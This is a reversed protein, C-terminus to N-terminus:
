PLMHHTLLRLSLLSDAIGDLLCELLLALFGSGLVLMIVGQELKGM